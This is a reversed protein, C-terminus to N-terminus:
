SVLHVCVPPLLFLPSVQAGSKWKVLSSDELAAEFDLGYDLGEACANCKMTTSVGLVVMAEQSADGLKITCHM